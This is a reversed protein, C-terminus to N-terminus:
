EEQPDQFLGAPVPMLEKVKQRGSTSGIVRPGRSAEALIRQEREDLLRDVEEVPAYCEKAFAEELFAKMAEHEIEIDPEYDISVDVPELGPRLLVGHGRVALKLHKAAEFIQEELPSYIPPLTEERAVHETVFTEGTTENWTDQHATGRQHAESEQDSEGESVVDGTVSAVVKGNSDVTDNAVDARSSTNGRTRTTTTSKSRTTGGGLSYSRVLVKKLVPDWVIRSPQNKIKDPCLSRLFMEEGLVKCDSLPLNGLILKLPTALVADYMVRSGDPPIWQSLAQFALIHRVNRKRATFLTEALANHPLYIPAEDCVITFPRSQNAKRLEIGQRLTHWVLALATRQGDASVDAGIRSGCVIGIAGEDMMRLPDISEISSAAFIRRLPPALIVPSIRNSPGLVYSDWTATSKSLTALNEWFSRLASNERLRAVLAHFVIREVPGREIFYRSDTLSLRLEILTRLIHYLVRSLLVRENPTHGGVTAMLIETMSAAARHPHIAALALPELSPVKGHSHSLDIYFVRPALEPYKTAILNLLWPGLDANDQVVFGERYRKARYLLGRLVKRNANSKGSNTGGAIIMSTALDRMTFYLKSGTEPNRGLVLADDPLSEGTLAAKPMFGNYIGNMFETHNM